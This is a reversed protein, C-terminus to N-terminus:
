HTQITCICDAFVNAFQQCCISSVEIRVLKKVLKKMNTFEYRVHSHNAFMNTDTLWDFCTIWDHSKNVHCQYVMHYYNACERAGQYKIMHVQVKIVNYLMTM